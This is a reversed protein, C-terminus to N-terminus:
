IKSYKFFKEEHIGVGFLAFDYKVPDNPDFKKLNETLEEATKWDNQKRTILQLKRAIRSVHLDCPCVLQSTKINNWIGFDVGKDDKRVMWRLYMNLRKCASNRAPTPIHKITRQPHNPLSFFAQHFSILGNGINKDHEHVANSFVLELSDYKKYLFKLAKIFYLLDTQNFTRHKFDPIKRLDRETHHLIFDHPAHEFIHILQMCKNIITKRQGWALTAALFGMVEIDQKKEFLHPICIPDNEIFKKQNYREYNEDLFNKLTEFNM